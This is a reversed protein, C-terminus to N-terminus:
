FHFGPVNQFYFGPTLRSNNTTAFQRGMSPKSSTQSQNKHESLINGPQEVIGDKTFFSDSVATSSKPRNSDLTQQSSSTAFEVNENTSFTYNLNENINSRGDNQLLSRLGFEFASYDLDNRSHTKRNLTRGQM